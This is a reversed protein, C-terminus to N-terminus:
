SQQYFRGYLKRNKKPHSHSDGSAAFRKQFPNGGVGIGRAIGSGTIGKQQCIARANKMEAFIIRM